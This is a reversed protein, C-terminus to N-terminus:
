RVVYLDHRRVYEEVARPVLYTLPMGMRVRSRLDTSSVDILPTRLVLARRRGLGAAVADLQREDDGPRVAVALRCLELIAQPEHWTEFQLLSDSGMIFVLEVDVYAEALARLTDVTYKLGRDLEVTSVIFREDGAIALRTMEVRVAAPTADAVTKHPPDAAPVFVVRELGLQYCAESAIVLHGLHPPNFSGGLVGVRRRRVPGNM